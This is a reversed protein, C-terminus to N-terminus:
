SHQCSRRSYSSHLCWSHTLMWTPWPQTSSHLCCHVRCPRTCCVVCWSCCCLWAILVLDLVRIMSTFFDPLTTVIPWTHKQKNREYECSRASHKHLSHIVTAPCLLAACGAKFVCVTATSDDTGMTSDWLLGMRPGVPLWQWEAATPNALVLPPKPRQWGLERLTLLPTQQQQQQEQEQHQVVHQM